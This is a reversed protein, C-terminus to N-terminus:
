AIGTVNPDGSVFNVPFSINFPKLNKLFDVNGDALTIGLAEINDYLQKVRRSGIV